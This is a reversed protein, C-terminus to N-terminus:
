QSESFSSVTKIRQPRWNLLLIQGSDLHMKKISNIRQFLEPSVFKRLSEWATNWTRHPGLGCSAPVGKSKDTKVESDSEPGPL